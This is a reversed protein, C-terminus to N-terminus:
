DFDKATRTNVYDDIKVEGDITLTDITVPVTDNKTYSSSEIVTTRYDIEHIYINSHDHDPREEFRAFNTFCGNSDPIKLLAANVDEVLDYVDLNELEYREVTVYITITVEAEQIGYTKPNWFVEDFEVWISPRPFAQEGRDIEAVDQSNYLKVNKVETPLETEIQAKIALYLDKLVSM